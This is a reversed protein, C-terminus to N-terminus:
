GALSDNFCVPLLLRSFSPLRIRGKDTLSNFLLIGSCRGDGPLTGWHAAQRLLPFTGQYRARARARSRGAAPVAM